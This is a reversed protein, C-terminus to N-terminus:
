GRDEVGKELIVRERARVSSGSLDYREDIRLVGSKSAYERALSQFM